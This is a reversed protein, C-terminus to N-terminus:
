HVDYDGMTYYFDGARPAPRQNFFRYELWHDRPTTRVGHTQLLLSIPHRASFWGEVPKGSGHLARILAATGRESLIGGLEMLAFRDEFSRLLAATRQRLPGTKVSVVEYRHLPHFLYRWRLYAEDRIAGFEHRPRTFLRLTRADLPKAQTSLEAADLRFEHVPELATYGLLREGVRRHREGPFGYVLPARTPGCCDEFMRRVTRVFVGGGGAGGAYSPSSMFDVSQFATYQERGDRFQVPIGGCHAVIRGEAECVYSVSSREGFYKWAWVAPHRDTGFAERFLASLLPIDDPEAPRIIEIEAL